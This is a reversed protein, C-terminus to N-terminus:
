VQDPLTNGSVMEVDHGSDKEFKLWMTSPHVAVRVIVRLKLDACLSCSM